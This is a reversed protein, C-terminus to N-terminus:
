LPARPDRHTRNFIPTYYRFISMMEQGEFPVKESYFVDRPDFEIHSLQEVGIDEVEPWLRWAIPLKRNSVVLCLKVM